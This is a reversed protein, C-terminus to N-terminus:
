YDIFNTEVSKPEFPPMENWNYDRKKGVKADSWWVRQMAIYRVPDILHDSGITAFTGGAGKVKAVYKETDEDKAKAWRRIESILNTCEQSVLFADNDIRGLLQLVSALRNNQGPIPFIGQRYFEGQVNEADVLSRNRASPDIIYIPEVGWYENKDKIEQAIEKIGKSRPYLEDFVLMTNDKDFAAWIVGGQVIGPDIGVFIQQGVLDARKVPPTIQEDGFRDFVLGGMQVFKGEVRAAYQEKSYKSAEEEIVSKPMYINSLVSAEIYFRNPENRRDYIEDYTWTLGGGGLSPTMTFMMQSGPKKAYRWLRKQNEEYILKGQNGLPEEDFHVRHLTVGAHDEQQQEGTNFLIYSGNKFSLKKVPQQQLAKAFSGGKLQDVPCYEQLKQIIVSQAIGFSPSVIRCYFPGNWRKFKRLHEPLAEEDVCQILNDIVGITTKGSQNGGVFAKLNEKALLFKRQAEMPEFFMLPNKERLEYLSILEPLIEQKQDEPLNSLFNLRERVSM